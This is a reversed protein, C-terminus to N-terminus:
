SAPEERERWRLCRVRWGPEVVELPPEVADCLKPLFSPCRPHFSCGRPLDAASPVAGPIPEVKKKVGDEAEGGLRPRSRMLAQTYPMRPRRFVEEVSGEEVIQGAYMVMVRSAIERVLGLDHTVFLIAMGTERQLSKLHDVIQAQITVDLATTPEDAVLLSPRGSLAMAIMVRQRMGGSLQHPYSTLCKDPSPIDLLGLLRLSEARAERLSLDRHVRLAESIQTGIRYIPDLSSMPEQFIMAVDNGRVRRLHRKPLANVDVLTGDKRALRISGGVTAAAPDLLGLLALGTTSKGSGSEGVLAVVEHRRMEFSIGRVAPTLNPARGFAVALDRVTVLPASDDASTM